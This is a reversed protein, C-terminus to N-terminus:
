ADPIGLHAAKERLERFVTEANIGEGRELEAIAERVDHKLMDRQKLLALAERMVAAESEYQGSALMETVLRQVDVPLSISM